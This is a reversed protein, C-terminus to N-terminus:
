ITEGGKYILSLVVILELVWILQLELCAIATLSCQFAVLRVIM